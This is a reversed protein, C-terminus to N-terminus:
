GSGLPELGQVLINNETCRVHTVQTNKTCALGYHVPLRNSLYVQLYSCDAFRNGLVGNHWCIKLDYMAEVVLALTEQFCGLLVDGFYQM